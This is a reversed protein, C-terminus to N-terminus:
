NRKPSSPKASQNSSDSTEDTSTSISLKKALQSAFLKDPAEEKLEDKLAFVRKQETAVFEYLKHSMNEASFKYEEAFDQKPPLFEGIPTFFNTIFGVIKNVGLDCFTNWTAVDYFCDKPLGIDKILEDSPNNLGLTDYLTGTKLSWALKGPAIIMEGASKFNEKVAAEDRGSIGSFLVMGGHQSIYGNLPRLYFISDKGQLFGYVGPPIGLLAEKLKDPHFWYFYFGSSREAPEAVKGSNMQVMVRGYGKEKDKDKTKFRFPM